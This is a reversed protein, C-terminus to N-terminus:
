IIGWTDAKIKVLRRSLGAGLNFPASYGRITTAGNITLATVEFLTSIIVEQGIKSNTDSPLTVTHTAITGVAELNLLQNFEDDNFLTTGADVPVADVVDMRLSVQRESFDSYKVSLGGTTTAGLAVASSRVPWSDVVTQLLSLNAM